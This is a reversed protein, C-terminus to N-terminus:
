AANTPIEASICICHYNDNEELDVYLNSDIFMEALNSLIWKYKDSVFLRIAGNEAYVESVLNDSLALAVLPAFDELAVM